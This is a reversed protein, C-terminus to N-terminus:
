RNADTSELRDTEDVPEGPPDASDGFATVLRKFEDTFGEFETRALGGATATGDDDIRVWVRRRRVLLAPLLGALMTIAGALVIGEGPDYRVELTGYERYGDFTVYEGDGMSLSDGVKLVKTETDVVKLAGSSIQDPDVSYVSQPQGSDLGTDGRYATLMLAPNEIAPSASQAFPQGDVSSPSFVGEFAVQGDDDQEGTDPDM